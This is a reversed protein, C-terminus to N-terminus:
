QPGLHRGPDMRPQLICFAKKWTYNDRSYLNLMWILKILLWNWNFLFFGNLLTYLFSVNLVTLKSSVSTNLLRITDLVASWNLISAFVILPLRFCALLVCMTIFLSYLQRPVFCFNSFLFTSSHLCIHPLLCFLLNCCHTFSQAILFSTRPDIRLLLLCFTKKWRWNDKNYLNLM